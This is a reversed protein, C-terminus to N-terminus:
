LMDFNFKFSRQKEKIKSLKINNNYYKTNIERITEIDVPHTKIGFCMKAIISKDFPLLGHNRVNNSSNSKVM